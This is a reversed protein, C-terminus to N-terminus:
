HARQRAERNLTEVADVYDPERQWMMLAQEAESLEIKDFLDLVKSLEGSEVEKEGPRAQRSLLFISAFSPKEIGVAKCTLALSEGGPEHLFRRVLKSNLGSLRSFLAEFFPIRGDRLVQVLYEPTISRTQALHDALVRLSEPSESAQLQSNPVLSRVTGEVADDLTAPDIAFHELIHQRLAASVWWYMRKALEPPLDQRRLLPGQYRDVHRSEAVLSEITRDSINAEQNDLLTAIVEENGTEVLADSVRERLPARTAIVLSHQLSCHHVVDILDDDNLVASNILIPYAVEIRDNSLAVVLERPAHAYQALRAALERRVSMEVDHILQRLIGTMLERERLGLEGSEDFYLGSLVAVLSARADASRDHALELLAELDYPEAVLPM